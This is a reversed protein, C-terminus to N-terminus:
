KETIYFLSFFRLWVSILFNQFFLTFIVSGTFIYSNWRVRAVVINPKGTVNPWSSLFMYVLYIFHHSLIINNSSSTIFVLCIINVITKCCFGSNITKKMNQLVNLFSYFIKLISIFLYIFFYYTLSFYILNQYACFIFFQGESNLLCFYYKGSCIIYFCDIWPCDDFYEFIIKLKVHSLLDNYHFGFCDFFINYFSM